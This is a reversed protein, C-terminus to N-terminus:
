SEVVKVSVCSGLVERAKPIHSYILLTLIVHQDVRPACWTVHIMARSRLAARKPLREITARVVALSPAGAQLVERQPIELMHRQRVIEADSFGLVFASIITDHDHLTVVTPGVCSQGVGHEESNWVNTECGMGFDVTLTVNISM